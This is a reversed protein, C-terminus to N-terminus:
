QRDEPGLLGSARSATQARERIMEVDSHELRLAAAPRLGEM